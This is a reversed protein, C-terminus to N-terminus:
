AKRQTWIQKGKKVQENLPLLVSSSLMTLIFDRFKRGKFFVRRSEVFCLTGVHLWSIKGYARTNGIM